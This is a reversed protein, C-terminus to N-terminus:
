VIHYADERHRRDRQFPRAGPRHGHAAPDPAHRQENEHERGQPAQPLPVAPEPHALAPAPREDHVVRRHRVQVADEGCQDVVGTWSTDARAQDRNEDLGGGERRLLGRDSECEAGHEAEGEPDDQRM